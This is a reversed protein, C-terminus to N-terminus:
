RKEAVLIAALILGAGGWQVPDLTEGFALYSFGAAFVPEGAFIVAARTATTDKQFRNQLALTLVLMVAMSGVGLALHGGWEWPGGEAVAFPACVLPLVAMQVLLLDRYDHKRTLSELLIIYLAYALACGLTLVDGRNLGGADPRTLLLLGGAALVAGVAPWRAPFRRAILPLLLPVLVVSLGTIFGSRSPTTHVLGLTQLLYSGGGFLALLLGPAVAERPPLRRHLFLVLLLFGAGFRLALFSFPPTVELTYKVMPFSTGWLLAVVLLMLEARRHAKM